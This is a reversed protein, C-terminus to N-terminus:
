RVADIWQLMSKETREVCDQLHGMCSEHILTPSFAKGSTRKNEYSYISYIYMAYNSSPNTLM